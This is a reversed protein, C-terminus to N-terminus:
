LPISRQIEVKKTSHFGKSRKSQDHLRNWISLTMLKTNKTFVLQYLHIRTNNYDYCLDFIFKHGSYGINNTVKKNDM